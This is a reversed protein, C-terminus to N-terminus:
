SNQTWSKKHSELHDRRVYVKGCKECQLKPKFHIQEHRVLLCRKEFTKSCVKCIHTKKTKVAKKKGEVHYIKYHKYFNQLKTFTSLCSNCKLVKGDKTYRLEKEPQKNHSHSYACKKLHKALGGSKKVFLKPCGRGPCPVRDSGSTKGETDSTVTTIISAEAM